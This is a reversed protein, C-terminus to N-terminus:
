LSNPAEGCGKLDVLTFFLVQTFIPSNSGPAGWLPPCTGALSPVVGGRAGPRYRSPVMGPNSGGPPGWDEETVMAVQTPLDDGEEKVESVYVIHPRQTAPRGRSCLRPQYLLAWAPVQGWTTM